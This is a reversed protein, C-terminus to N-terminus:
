RCRKQPPHSPCNGPLQLVYNKVDIARGYGEVDFASKQWLDGPPNNAIRIENLITSYMLHNLRDPRVVDHAPHEPLSMYSFTPCQTTEGQVLKNEPGWLFLGGQSEPGRELAEMMLRMAKFSEHPAVWWLRTYKLYLWLRPSSMKRYASTLLERNRERISEDLGKSWSDTIVRLLFM